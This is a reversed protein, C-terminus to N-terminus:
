SILILIVIDNVIYYICFAFLSPMSRGAFCAIILLLTTVNPFFRNLTIISSKMEREWFDNATNSTWLNSENEKRVTETGSTKNLGTYIKRAEITTRYM